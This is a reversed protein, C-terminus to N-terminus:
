AWRRQVSPKSPVQAIRTLLSPRELVVFGVPVAGREALMERVRTLGDRRTRDLAVTIIVADALGTLVTTEAAPPPPASVVVADVQRRLQVVLASLREPLLWETMHRDEPHALLVRLRQSSVRPQVTSALSADDSELLEGLSAVLRVDGDIIGALPGRELDADILMVSMGSRALLAALVAAVAPSGEGNGASTVLLTKAQSQNPLLIGLNAWLTRISARLDPPM